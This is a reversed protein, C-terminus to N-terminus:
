LKILDYTITIGFIAGVKCDNGLGIGLSPGISWHTKKIEPCPPCEISLSDLSVNFGTLSGGIRVEKIITDFHHKTIPIFVSDTITDHHDIRKFKVVDNRVFITDKLRVTDIIVPAPDKQPGQKCDNYSLTLGLIFGFFLVTLHTLIKDLMKMM